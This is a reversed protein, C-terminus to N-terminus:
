KPIYGLNQALWKESVSMTADAWRRSYDRMQDKDVSGVAFYEALPHAFIVASVSAGPMMMFSETLEMGCKSADVLNWLTEKERHDPQTPYGGAPRIGQYKVKLMDALSLQEGPAFGWMEVRIKHHLYEAFAEALRDALAEVLISKDIDETAKYKQVLEALGLGGTCAFAAIYDDVGRPAVFDTLNYLPATSVNNDTQQRLGRMVCKVRSRDPLNTTSDLEYVEIDEGDASANAPWIGMAASCRVLRNTQMAALMEKAEEFLEKAHPGVREDNFINPYDRNPYKGRLQYTQFFPTWDIYPLVEIIPFDLLVTNGLFNPKPPPPLLEFDIKFKRKKAVEFKIYTRKEAAEYYDRRMEEYEVNVSDVFTQKKEKDKLKRAVEVARSADLVYVVGGTYQPQIKVATHMKSTTAGGIMLPLTLKQKAMESAVFVMEDLSPTILGSLGIIDAKEKLAAELIVNCPVMVGLDIVNFNNCGLVVGVINKGIDHVDGKVTALLVTGQYQSQLEGGSEEQQKKKEADMFPILHAVAKKMVRASKIVQPLFMKGSGFLDGVHSMGDMLPGEIVRLPAMNQRAEETDDVIYKDIGKVLAYSLREGYPKLRWEDEAKSVGAVGGSQKKDREEEAYSLLREVHKGDSSSNLIVDTILARANEPIDEYIPLAGANVIAMSLGRAIAHYLFVSHMAERLENMGRFSFSLNSLGGSYTAHPCAKHLHEVAELFDVAYNNHESLGTAITLINVDFVIDEPPFGEEDVLINYARTCIDIKTQKDAAQGNEDFAMVVVAAGYRRVLRAHSRFLEEGVKLSISNVICKGQVWKLGEEVVRFKSSDLMFPVKSIEPDTAAMRCFKGMAEVGDLLGEDFNLDLVQAGSEVQARAVELGEDYQGNMILKKFRASGSINCREGINVFGLEKTLHLPELGSLWMYKLETDKRVPLERPPLTRVRECLSEIHSPLVGCCGGVINLLGDRAFEELNTAFDDPTEDYGGMANPLGANPYCHCYISGAIKTLRQFFPKMQQAGLACNIGVCFPKAHSISIFFAEVTQGSLTRGSMDVLTGSIIVPLPPEGTEAFYEEVAFIAAKANLTDFITEILLLDVGGDVLGKVAAKYSDALETYQINRFSCDEVSPSVSLTRSTPGVAGAVLRIKGDQKFLEDCSERALKSGMVNLEYAYEATDYEGQSVTTANFTNTEIIDSGALLFEKHIQKVLEPRTLSLIDNNGKLDKKHDKLRPDDRFDEETLPDQQIRTGMGGDFFVIRKELENRLFERTMDPHPFHPGM